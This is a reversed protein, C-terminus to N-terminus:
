YICRIRVISDSDICTSLFNIPLLPFSECVDCHLTLISSNNGMRGERMGVNWLGGGEKKM